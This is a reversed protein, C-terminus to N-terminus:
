RGEKPKGNSLSDLIGNTVTTGNNGGWGVIMVGLKPVKTETKFDIKKTFPVITIGKENAVVKSTEYTYSSFMESGKLEVNKSDVDFSNALM